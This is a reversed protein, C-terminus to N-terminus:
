GGPAGTSMCIGGGRAQVLEDDSERLRGAELKVMELGDEQGGGFFFWTM